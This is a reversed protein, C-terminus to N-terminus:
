SGGVNVEELTNYRSMVEAKEGIMDHRTAVETYSTKKDLSPEM